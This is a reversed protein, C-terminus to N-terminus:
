SKSSPDYNVYQINDPKSMNKINDLGINIYYKLIDYSNFIYGGGVLILDDINFVLIKTQIYNKIIKFICILLHISTIILSIFKVSTLTKNWEVGYGKLRKNKFITFRLFLISSVLISFTIISSIKEKYQTIIKFCNSYDCEKTKYQYKCITCIDSKLLKISKLLCSKHIWKMSGICKCPNLFLLNCDKSNKDEPEFCLRCVDEDEDEDIDKANSDTNSNNSNNLVKQISYLNKLISEYNLYTM